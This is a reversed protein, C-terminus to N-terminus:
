INIYIRPQEDVYVIFQGPDNADFTSYNENTTGDTAKGNQLKEYDLFRSKLLLLEYRMDIDSLHITSLSWTPDIYISCKLHGSKFYLM